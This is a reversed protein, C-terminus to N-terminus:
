KPMTDLVSQGHRAAKAQFARLYNETVTVSGHGLLRSLRYVDGGREMYHCAYTHRATHCSVRLGAIGARDRLRKFLDDLAKPTMAGFARSLFVNPANTAPRFRHVYRHLQIRCTKGMGVDRQKRGKGNVRVFPDDRDFFLRDLTLDCLENARIGTDFLLMLLAKDREALWPHRRDAEECATIMARVQDPSFTQIIKVEVHPLRVNRVARESVLGDKACWALWGKIVQIYGHTTYTSIPQGYRNRNGKVHVAYERVHHADLDNVDAAPCPHAECTHVSCWDVFAALKQRYWRLTGNSVNEAECAFRYANVSWM